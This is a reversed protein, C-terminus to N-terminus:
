EHVELSMTAEAVKLAVKDLWVAVSNQNSM